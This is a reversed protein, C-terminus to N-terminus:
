SKTIRKPVLRLLILAKDDQTPKSQYFIDLPLRGAERAKMLLIVANAAGVAYTFEDGPELKLSRDEMLAFARVRLYHGLPADPKTSQVVEFGEVQHELGVISQASPLGIDQAEIAEELTDATLMREAVQEIIAITDEDSFSASLEAEQAMREKLLEFPKRPQVEGSKGAVETQKGAM